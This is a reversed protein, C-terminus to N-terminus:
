SPTVIRKKKMAQEVAYDAKGQNMTAAMWALTEEDVKDNLDKTPNAVVLAGGELGDKRVVISCFYRGVTAKDKAIEKLATPIPHLVLFIFLRLRMFQHSSAVLLPMM